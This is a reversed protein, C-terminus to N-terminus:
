SGGSVVPEPEPEPEPEPASEHPAEAPPSSAGTPPAEQTPAAEHEPAPEQTAQAEQNPAAEQAEAASPSSSTELVQPTQAPPKLPAASGTSTSSRRSTGGRHARGKSSTAASKKVTRGPFANAAVETFAGTLLVSGALLWRNMRHLQQLAADRTHTTHIRM